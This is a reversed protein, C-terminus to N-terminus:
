FAALFSFTLSSATDEASRQQERLLIFFSIIRCSFSLSHSFSFVLKSLSYPLLLSIHGLPVASLVWQAVLVFSARCDGRGLKLLVFFTAKVGDSSGYM